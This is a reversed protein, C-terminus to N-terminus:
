LLEKPNTKTFISIKDKTGQSMFAQAIKFLFYTFTTASVVVTRFTRGIYVSQFIKFVRAVLKIPVSALSYKYLDGIFVWNEVHGPVM